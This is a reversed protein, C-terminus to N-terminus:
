QANASTNVTGECLTSNHHALGELNGTGVTGRKLPFGDEEQKGARVSKRKCNKAALAGLAYVSGRNPTWQSSLLLPNCM